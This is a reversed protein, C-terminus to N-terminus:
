QWVLSGYEHRCTELVHRAVADPHSLPYFGDFEPMTALGEPSAIATDSREVAYSYRIHEYTPIVTIQLAQNTIQGYFCDFSSQYMFFGGVVQNQRSELVMYASGLVEPQGSEGYFYIDGASTTQTTSDEQAIAGPVSVVSSPLDAALALLLGPLSLLLWYCYKKVDQASGFRQFM